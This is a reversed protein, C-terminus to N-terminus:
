IRSDQSKDIRGVSGQRMGDAVTTDVAGAIGVAAPYQSQQSSVMGAEAKCQFCSDASSFSLTADRADARHQHQATMTASQTEGPQAFRMPKRSFNLLAGAVEADDMLLAWTSRPAASGVAINAAWKCQRGCALPCKERESLACRRPSFLFGKSPQLERPVALVAYRRVMEDPASNM